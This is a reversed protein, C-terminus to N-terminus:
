GDFSFVMGYAEDPKQVHRLREAGRHKMKENLMDQLSFFCTPM